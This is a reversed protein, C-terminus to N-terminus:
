LPVETMVLQDDDDWVLEPNGAGDTTTLPVLVSTAAGAPSWKVEGSDITPVDGDDGDDPDLFEVPLRDIPPM